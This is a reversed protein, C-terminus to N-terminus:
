LSKDRIDIESKKKFRKLWGELFESQRWGIVWREMAKAEKAYQEDGAKEVGALRVVAIGGSIKIPSQYVPKATSLESLMEKVERTDGLRPVIGASRSVTDLEEWKVGFEKAAAEFDEPKKDLTEILKAAKKRAQVISEYGQYDKLAEQRVEDLEPTRVPTKKVLKMVVFDDGTRVLKSIEGEQLAFAEDIIEPAAGVGPIGLGRTVTEAKQVDFGFEKAPDSLSEIRYVKEYFDEADDGVRRRAKEELLKKVIKEKTSEFSKTVEPLKKDVRIIHYGKDTLVPESIEGEELEFAVEEFAPNLTGAVVLGLDGGKSAGAEDESVAKATEAFDEGGKIKALIEDAKKKLEGLKVDDANEPRKLLIQRVRIREPTTFEGLHTDYYTQAEEDTVTLKKAVDDWSFTVYELDVSEPIEYKAGHKVFYDELAAADTEAMEKPDQPTILAMSLKLKSNQFRWLKKIEEPDTKVGDTLTGVLRGAELDQRLMAEYFQRTLSIQKMYAEYMYEDFVGNNQFSPTSRIQNILDEDTVFYGVRESEQMLVLRNVQNKLVSKKLKDDIGDPLSGRFRLRLKERESRYEGYFTDAPIPTGNVMAVYNTTEEPTPSGGYIFIFALSIVAIAVKILWSKANKRMLDLM